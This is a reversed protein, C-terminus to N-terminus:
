PGIWDELEAERHRYARYLCEKSTCVNRRLAIWDRQEAIVVDEDAARHRAYRYLRALEVDRRALDSDSCILREAQNRATACDFSPHATPVFAAEPASGVAPAPAAGTVAPTTQPAPGAAQPTMARLKGCGEADGGNCAKEYLGRAWSVDRREGEGNYAMSGLSTCARAEGARCAREYLSIAKAFDKAQYAAQGDAFLSQGDDRGCGAISLSCVALVLLLNSKRGVPNWRM